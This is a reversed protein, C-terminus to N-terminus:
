QEKFDIKAGDNLMFAGNVVIQEGEKIDGSIEIYDGKIYGTKVWRERAIGHDNIFVYARGQGLLVARELVMFAQKTGTNVEVTVNMGIKIKGDANKGKVIVRGDSNEGNVFPTVSEVSAEIGQEPDNAPYIKAAMGKKIKETEEPGVPISVKIVSSDGTEAIPRNTWVEAGKDRYYLKIVMGGSAAKVPELEFGGGAIDRDIYAIIQGKQVQQGESVINKDFKGSLMPFSMVQPDGEANGNLRIIVDVSEPKLTKGAVTYLLEKNKEAGQIIKAAIRFIMLAAILALLALASNKLIKKMKSEPNKDM